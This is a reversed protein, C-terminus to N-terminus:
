YALVKAHTVDPPKVVIMIKHSKMLLDQYVEMLITFLVLKFTIM